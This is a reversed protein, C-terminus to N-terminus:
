QIASSFGQSTDYLISTSTSTSTPRVTWHLRKYGWERDLRNKFINVSKPQGSQRVARELSTCSKSQLFEM